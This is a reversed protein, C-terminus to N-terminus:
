PCLSSVYVISLKQKPLCLWIVFIQSSFLPNCRFGLELMCNELAEFLDVQRQFLMIKFMQEEVFLLAAGNEVERVEDLRVETVSYEGGGM